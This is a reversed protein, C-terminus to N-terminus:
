ILHGGNMNAIGSIYSIIDNGKHGSFAHRLRKFEKWECSENEKPYKEKLYKQLENATM